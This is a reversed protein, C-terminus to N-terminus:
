VLNWYDTLYQNYTFQRLSHPPEVKDLEGDEFEMKEDKKKENKKDSVAQESMEKNLGELVAEKAANMEELPEYPMGDETLEEEAEAERDAGTEENSVLEGEDEDEETVSNKDTDDQDYNSGIEVM